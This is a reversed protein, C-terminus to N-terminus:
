RTRRMLLYYVGASVLVGTFWSLHYLFAVAPVWYGILATSVGAALAILAATNFGSRYRYEGDERYLGALNLETRRIVFYDCVLIGLVPGLLGSVFILIGSIENLLWWPCILIGVIGAVTGGGKFSLKKPFLNSFANAPAIVNAAINTTLTAILMFFQSVIVVAPSEFRALLSVPDWPADDAVLVDKFTVVTASTVFIGVFSYLVMAGPLGLFQGIVQDKQSSAYRTIDSISLSMTAWFGVMATLWLVYSWWSADAASTASVTQVAVRSSTAGAEGSRFQVWVSAVGRAIADHDAGADAPVIFTPDNGNLTMWGLEAVSGDARPVSLQFDGAKFNGDVHRLPHLKVSLTGNDMSLTATPKELQRGQTLVTSFGGAKDASWFILVIGIAVLVPAALNELWKISETGKWIFYLNVLWFLGFCIFKGATLESSGPNGTVANGIAYFALGGIWTQVGFWGCAVIARIVSAVHIGATGFSARGFVPFPIGYKVGVHGNLVMPLTVMINALAIIALSAEWSVGSKIMYSALIYTPICVAMGVWLAALNWMNWTRKDKPVPALDASYLSSQSLDEHLEVIETKMHM